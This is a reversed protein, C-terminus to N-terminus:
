GGVFYNEGEYALLDDVTRYILPNTNQSNSFVKFNEMSNIQTISFSLNTLIEDGVDEFTFSNGDISGIFVNGKLDKVMILENSNSFQKWSTIKDITDNKYSYKSFVNNITYSELDGILCSLTTTIYDTLGVSVKPYASFGQHYVKNTNHKYGDTSLNLNFIWQEIPIYNNESIQGISTFSWGYWEVYVKNTFIANQSYITKALPIISYDYYGRNGVTWDIIDIGISDSITEDLDIQSILTSSILTNGDLSYKNRYLKYGIISKNGSQIYSSLYNGNYNCNIRMKNIDWAPSVGYGNSINTNGVDEVYLTLYKITINSNLVISGYYRDTLTNYSASFQTPTVQYILYQVDSTGEVLDGNTLTLTM